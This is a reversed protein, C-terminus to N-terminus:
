SIRKFSMLKPEFYADLVYNTMEKRFRDVAESVASHGNYTDDILLYGDIKVKPAYAVIDKWPVSDDGGNVEGHDGDILVVDYSEDTFLEACQVSDGDITRIKHSIPRINKIFTEQQGCIWNDVSWVSAGAVAMLFTTGGYASGIEIATCSEMSRIRNWIYQREDDTMISQISGYPSLLANVDEFTEPIQLTRPM